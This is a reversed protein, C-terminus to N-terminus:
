RVGLSASETPPLQFTQAAAQSRSITNVHNNAAEIGLIGPYPSPGILVREAPLVMGTSALTALVARKRSEALEPEDPSWEVLIPGSWHPLRGYMLNLRSAGAPSFRDSGPLFDSQYLTFRHPDAKSVQVAFQRNVYSGLPPEVFAEPYGIFDDQLTHATHHLMRHIRGRRTCIPRAPPPAPDTPISQAGAEPVISELLVLMALSEWRIRPRLRANM